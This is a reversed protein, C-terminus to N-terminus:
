LATQCYGPLVLGYRVWRRILVRRKSICALSGQTVVLLRDSTRIPYNRHGLDVVILRESLDGGPVQTISLVKAQQYEVDLVLGKFLLAAILFLGVLACTEAIRKLRHVFRSKLSTSKLTGFM